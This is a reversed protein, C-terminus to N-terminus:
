RVARRVLLAAQKESALTEFGYRTLLPEVAARDEDRLFLYMGKDGTQHVARELEEPTDAYTARRELYYVAEPQGHYNYLHVVAGEPLQGATREALAKIQPSYDAHILHSLPVHLWMAAFFVCLVTVRRTEPVWRALYYAATLSLAPYLPLIYWALKTRICTIVAFYGWVWAAVLAVAPDRRRLAKWLFLPASWVTILMWPHYKNIMTRIYFYWNGQHGDVVQTTRTVLHKVVVDTMFSERNATMEYLNWPLALVAALGLGAWATPRRIWSFDRALLGYVFFLPLVTLIAFGKVFLGAGLAAGAMLDYRGQERGRWFGYFVLVVCLVLPADMMGFRSLRLYHKASLLVLAGLLGTWRGFLRTGLAYTVVVALAGCAASFVRATFESAGFFKFLVATAWLCGPPKDSWPEGALNFRLWDGSQLIGKSVAAYLAEDWSALSGNGLGVLMFLLSVASVYLLDTRSVTRDSPSATMILIPPMM